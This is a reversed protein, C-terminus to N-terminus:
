AVRQGGALTLAGSPPLDYHRAFNHELAVAGDGPPRGARFHLTDVDAGPATGVIRGPVIITRGHTSADVQTSVVLREGAAAVADRAGSGDLAARLAGERATGGEVLSVRLDHMRLAAFSSDASDVRWISMSSMAAYMGVGLALLLAISLVQM